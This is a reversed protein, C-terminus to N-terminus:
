STPPLGSMTRSSVQGVGTVLAEGREMQTVIASVERSIDQALKSAEESAQGSPAFGGRAPEEAEFQMQDDIIPSFEQM